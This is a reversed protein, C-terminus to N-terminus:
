NCRRITSRAVLRFRVQFFFFMCMNETALSPHTTVSADLMAQLEKNKLRDRTKVSSDMVARLPKIDATIDPNFRPLKVPSNLIIWSNTIDRHRGRKISKDNASIAFADTIVKYMDDIFPVFSICKTLQVNRAM